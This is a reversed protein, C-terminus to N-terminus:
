RRAKMREPDNYPDEPDVPEGKLPPEPKWARVRQMAADIDVQLMTGGLKNRLETAEKRIEPGGRQQALTLWTYNTIRLDANMPRGFGIQALRFLAAPHGRGGALLYWRRADDRDQGTGDGNYRREGVMFRAETNGLDAARRYWGFAKARDAEVGRGDDYLSAMDLIAPTFDLEAARTLFVLAQEPSQAMGRGIAAAKALAYLARPYDKAASLRYWRVAERPDLVIGGGGEDSMRGILFQAEANGRQAHPLLLLYAGNFNGQEFESRGQVFDPPLVPAAQMTAPMRQPPPTEQALAPVAALFAALALLGPPIRANM